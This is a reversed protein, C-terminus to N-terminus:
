IHTLRYLDPRLDRTIQKIYAISLKKNKNRAEHLSESLKTIDVNFTYNIDECKVVTTNNEQLYRINM